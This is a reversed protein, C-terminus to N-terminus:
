RSTPPPILVLVATLARVRGGAYCVRSCGRGRAPHTMRTGTQDGACGSCLEVRARGGPVRCGMMVLRSAAAGQRLSGGTETLLYGHRGQPGDCLDGLKQVDSRETDVLQDVGVLNRKRFDRPALQEEIRGRDPLPDVRAGRLRLRRRAPLRLGHGGSESRLGM